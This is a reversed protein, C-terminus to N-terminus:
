SSKANSICIGIALLIDIIFASVLIIVLLENYVTLFSMEQFFVVQLQAVERPELM